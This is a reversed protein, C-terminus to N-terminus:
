DDENLQGKLAAMRKIADKRLKAAYKLDLACRKMAEKVAADKNEFCEHWWGIGVSLCLPTNRNDIEAMVLSGFVRLTAKKARGELLIWVKEGSKLRKM